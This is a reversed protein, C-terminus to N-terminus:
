VVVVVVYLAGGKKICDSSYVHDQNQQPRTEISHHRRTHLSPKSFHQSSQISPKLPLNMYIINKM